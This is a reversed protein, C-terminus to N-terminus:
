SEVTNVPENRIFGEINELTVDLIRQVAENTNFANHPTVYVNRMRLLTENALLDGWSEEDEIVIRILEAEERIVPEASIVDLGAAAIRDESLARLLDRENVIGGRATNLFIVGKKMKSFVDHDILNKTKENFPVHVTVVDSERCLSEMDVYRFGAEEAFAEDPKVDQGLVKMGIGGAMQVVCRGISGSAGIVGITKGMVDFGRLGKNSFDGKRTRDVGDSIRHAINLLLGITHSAVTNEGYTPVYSVEIGRGSCTKVDIHDFGTSRTAIAKLQPLKGLVADSVASHVFVSIIEADKFEDANDEDLPERVCVLEHQEELPEFTEKEWKETEFLYIKM